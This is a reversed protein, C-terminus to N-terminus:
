PRGENSTGRLTFDAITGTSAGSRIEDIARLAGEYSAFRGSSALIQGASAIIEFWYEAREKTERVKFLLSM